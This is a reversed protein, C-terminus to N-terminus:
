SKDKHVVDYVMKQVGNSVLDTEQLSSFVLYKPMANYRAFEETMTPWVPSFAEYSGRGLLLAEAKLQEHKKIEYANEDFDVDKFTWGANRYEEEGGPAEMVGDLSTFATIVLTHM